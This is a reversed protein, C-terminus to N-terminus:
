NNKKLDFFYQFGISFDLGSKIEKGEEIQIAKKTFHRYKLIPEIAISKTLFFSYGIGSSWSYNNWKVPFDKTDYHLFGVGTACEMFLGSRPYYRLWPGIFLDNRIYEWTTLSLSNTTKSQSTYLETSLGLTFHDSIFYGFILDTGLSVIKTTNIDPDISIGSNIDKQKEYNMSLAGGITFRGKTIPNEIQGFSVTILICILIISIFLKKM